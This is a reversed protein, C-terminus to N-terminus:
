KEGLGIGKRSAACRGEEPAMTYQPPRPRPPLALLVPAERGNAARATPCRAPARCQGLPARGRGRGAGLRPGTHAVPTPHGALPRRRRSSSSRRGAAEGLRAPPSLPHPNTKVTITNGRRPPRRAPDSRRRARATEAIVSGAPAGRAGQAAHTHLPVRACAHRQVAVAGVPLSPFPRRPPAVSRAREPAPPGSLAPRPSSRAAWARLQRPAATWNSTPCKFIPGAPRPPPLRRRPNYRAAPPSARGGRRGASLARSPRPQPRPLSARDGGRGGEERLECGLPRPPAQAPFPCLRGSVFSKPKARM